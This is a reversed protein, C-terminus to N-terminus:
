ATEEVSPTSENLRLLGRLILAIAQDVHPTAALIANEAQTLGNNLDTVSFAEFEERSAWKAQEEGAGPALRLVEAIDRTCGGFGGLLFLPQKAQLSLLSEEAIGPMRGKYREIRGGLVVRAQTVSLIVKRMSTLGQTWEVDTPETRPITRREDMTLRGGDLALLVFEASGAIESTFREIEAISLSCHVPWPLYNTVGTREDGEDADRLHRAVLEFLLETFGYTRLDGGYALRAGLALLHRAIETMADRLHEETLGLTSMDPSESISIAVTLQSLAERYTM